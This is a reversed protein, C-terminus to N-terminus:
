VRGCSRRCPRARVTSADGPRPGRDRGAFGRVGHACTLSLSLSSCRYECVRAAWARLHTHTQIHTYTDTYSVFGRLGNEREREREHSLSLSLSRSLSTSTSVGGRLAHACTHTHTHTHTHTTCCHRTMAPSASWRGAHRRRCPRARVTRTWRRSTHTLSLSLSFSLSHSLISYLYKCVRAAWARLHTHHPTHTHTHTHSHTLSLSLSLPLPLSLLLPM